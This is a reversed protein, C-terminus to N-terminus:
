FPIDDYQYGYEPLNGDDREDSGDLLPPKSSLEYNVIRDFKEGTISRVTIQKTGALAGAEALEIAQRVTDPVPENSRAQWWNEAKQRAYGTHEFCIWESQYQNWGIKYEVRLTPPTDPGANRKLHYHYWIDHVEYETDTVEGSLVGETCASAQHKSKEPAPFVHGCEPCTSYGAAIVSNCAPCEKAPATGHGNAVNNDKVQLCDVPGHRLINGGFDLVLCNEKDPHLRFGRGLMQYYLGPSNTPRLLVVCDVNPADFGTTLVNVNVLFKLPPKENGFLDAKVAQRKFRALLEARELAPTDGTVLGVEQKSRQQLLKQIHKAHDVSAAFILVSNREKTQEIIESCASSVLTEQDMLDDVEAAIFEGGRLHLGSTDPKQKAAKSKLPCLYGQVILEKVGVEYCIENLINDPGCIIGSSMRYPTATLGIVRLNPNVTLADQLFARYMGEGSPPIMHCNHALVGGAYYSPHGKIQLNFVPTPSKCQIHTIHVVRQSAFIGDAKQRGQTQKDRCSLERRDRDRNQPEPQCYRDQHKQAYRKSSTQRNDGCIGSALREGAHKIATDATRDFPWKRWSNDPCAWYGESDSQSKRQCGSGVHSKGSEQCLLNFLFAAKELSKGEYLKPNNRRFEEQDLSLIYERLMRVDKKSFLSTGIELFEAKQWGQETFIPHNPTCTVKTGDDLELEILKQTMKASICEIEGVGLATYVPQGVYLNEIAIEGRPTSVLTGAPFCEDILALNFPGLECARKYVSQIGAVLISHETDRRNLGASYIGIDLDPAAKSLTKATQEILEKVHALVLVRGDWLNVADTCITSMVPTKGGATPIVVCPNGDRNRLYEYVADVSQKQYDRLKM